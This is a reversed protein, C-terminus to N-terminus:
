IYTSLIYFYLSNNSSFDLLLRNKLDYINTWIKNKFNNNIKVKNFLNTVTVFEYNDKKLSEIIIPLANVTNINGTADHLLIISGDKVNDIITKARTKASIEPIWDECGIGCIFPVDIIEFM